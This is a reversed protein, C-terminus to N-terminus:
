YEYCLSCCRKVIEVVSIHFCVKIELLIISNRNAMFLMSKVIEVVSVHFCVKIELLIMSNRNAILINLHIMM